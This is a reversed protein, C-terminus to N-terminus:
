WAITKDLNSYTKTECVLRNIVWRIFSVPKTHIRESAKGESFDDSTSQFDLSREQIFRLETVAPARGQVIWVAGM